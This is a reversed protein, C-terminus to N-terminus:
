SPVFGTMPISDFYHWARITLDFYRFTTGYWNGFQPLDATRDSRAPNIFVNQIEAATSCGSV